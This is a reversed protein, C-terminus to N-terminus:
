IGKELGSRSWRRLIWGRDGDKFGVEVWDWFEVWGKGRIRVGDQCGVDWFGVGIMM